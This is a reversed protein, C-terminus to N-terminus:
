QRKGETTETPDPLWDANSRDQTRKDPDLQARIVRRVLWFGIFLAAAALIASFSPTNM